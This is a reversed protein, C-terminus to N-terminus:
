QLEAFMRGISQQIKESRFTEIIERNERRAESRVDAMECIRKLKGSEVELPLILGCGYRRVLEPGHGSGVTCLLLAGQALYEGIKTPCAVRNIVHNERLVFGFAATALLRPVEQKTASLITVRNGVKEFNLGLQEKFREPEPTLVLLHANKLHRSVADFWQGIQRVCQYRQVGGSYAFVIKNELGLRKREYANDFEAFFEREVAIPIVRVHALDCGTWKSGLHQLMADSVVMVRDAKKLVYHEARDCWKDPNTTTESEGARAYTSEEPVAGHIDVIVPIDPRRWWLSFFGAHHAEAQIYRAQWRWSYYRILSHCYPTALARPLSFRATPPVSIERIARVGEAELEPRWSRANHFAPVLRLVGVVYKAAILARVISVSRIAYGTRIDDAGFCVVLVDVKM